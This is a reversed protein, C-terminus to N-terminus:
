KKVNGKRVLKQAVFGMVAGLLGMVKPVLLCLVLYVGSVQYGDKLLDADRAANVIFEYFV